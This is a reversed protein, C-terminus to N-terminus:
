YYIGDGMTGKKEEDSLVVRRRAGGDEDRHVTYVVRMRDEQELVECLDKGSAISGANGLRMVTPALLRAIAVPSDDTIVVKNALLSTILLFVLQVGGVCAFIAILYATNSISLVVGVSPSESDM